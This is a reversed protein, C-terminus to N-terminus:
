TWLSRELASRFLRASQDETERITTALADSRDRVAELEAVVAGQQDRPPLPIRVTMVQKKNLTTLGSTTKAMGRFQARAEPGQLAWALYRPDILAENPRAAFVHNQHLCGPVEGQWLGGQGLRGPSGSGEVMLVDGPQLAFREAETETAEIEKIEELLLEGKGVNGARLYPYPRTTGATRRGKALGSRVDAVDGLVGGPWRALIDRQSALLFHVRRASALTLAATAVALVSSVGDLRAVIRRQESVPPVPIKLSELAERPVRMRGTAGEMARLLARRAQDSRLAYALYTPVLQESRLAYVETTAYGWGNPVESVVAIKGNEFCPTIRALLVDGNEFYTGSRVEDPRRLDWGELSLQKDSIRAMPVFPIESVPPLNRPKSTIEAVDKLRV